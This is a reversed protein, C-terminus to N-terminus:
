LDYWSCYLAGYMNVMGGTERRKLFREKGCIDPLLISAAAMVFVSLSRYTFMSHIISHNQTCAYWIFPYLAVCGILLFDGM